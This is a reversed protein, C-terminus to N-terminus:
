DAKAVISAPKAVMSGPKPVISRTKALIPGARGLISDTEEPIPFIKWGRWRSRGM